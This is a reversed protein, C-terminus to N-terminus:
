EDGEVWIESSGVAARWSTITYSTKLSSFTLLDRFCIIFDRIRGFVFWVCEPYYGPGTLKTRKKPLILSKMIQKWSKSVKLTTTFMYYTCHVWYMYLKHKRLLSCFKIFDEGNYTDFQGHLNRDIKTAKKSFMFKVYRYSFSCQFSHMFLRSGNTWLISQM